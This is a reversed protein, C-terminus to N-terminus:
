YERLLGYVKRDIEDVFVPKIAQRMSVLQQPKVGLINAAKTTGGQEHIFVNLPRLLISPPLSKAADKFGREYAEEYKAQEHQMMDVLTSEQSLRLLKEQLEVSEKGNMTIM